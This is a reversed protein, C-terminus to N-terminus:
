FYEIINGEIKDIDFQMLGTHQIIHSSSRGGECVASPTIMWLGAKLKKIEEQDKCLRIQSILDPQHNFGITYALPLTEPKKGFQYVGNVLTPKFVSVEIDILKKM